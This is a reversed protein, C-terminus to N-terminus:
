AVAGAIGHDQLWGCAWAAVPSTSGGQKLVDDYVTIYQIAYDVYEQTLGYQKLVEARLVINYGYGYKWYHMQLDSAYAEAEYTTRDSKNVLYQVPFKVPSDHYQVVHVCEHTCISIQNWLDYGGSPVGIEFPTYITDFITTTFHNMFMEKNTIGMLDLFDAVLKMFASDGKSSQKAGWKVKAATWFEKTLEPTITAM